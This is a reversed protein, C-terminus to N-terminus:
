EMNKLDEKLTKIEHKGVLILDYVDIIYGRKIGIRCGNM